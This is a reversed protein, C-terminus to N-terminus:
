NKYITILSRYLSETFYKLIKFKKAKTTQKTEANWIQASGEPARPGPARAGTAGITLGASDVEMEIEINEWFQTDM